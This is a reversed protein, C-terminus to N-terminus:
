LEFNQHNPAPRIAITTALFHIISTCENYFVFAMDSYCVVNVHSKQILFM